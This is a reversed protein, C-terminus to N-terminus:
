KRDPEFTRALVVKSSEDVQFHLLLMKYGMVWMHTGSLHVEHAYLHSANCMEKTFSALGLRSLSKDRMWREARLLFICM